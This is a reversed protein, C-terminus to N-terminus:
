TYNKDSHFGLYAHLLVAAFSTQYTDDELHQLDTLNSLFGCEVLIAPCGVHSTIYLKESAPEALRRNDPQLYSVLEGHTKEGFLRSHEGSAYLVQAGSPQSTPYFNQHISILVANPVSNILETRHVLDEHESYSALDTRRSDDSRTMFTHVGCFEALAQLKLAIALNIDSEKVGNFAIAGGDIGGHGPDIVLCTQTEPADAQVASLRQATSVLLVAAVILCLFLGLDLAKSLKISYFM